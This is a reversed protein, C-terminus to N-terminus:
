KQLFKIEKLDFIELGKITQMILHGTDKVGEICGLFCEGTATKEYNRWEGRLYLSNLYDLRLKEFNQQRLQLYRQELCQALYEICDEIKFYEKTEITLSTPNPANSLFVSQNINIGIGVISHQLTEGQLSNQILIGAIKKDQVYIDNSWKIKTQKKVYFQVFDHVGLAIAQNLLFHNQIKLFTPYFVVSLTINQNAESEWINSLQGKGATQHRAFILTGDLIKKQALLTQAYTNTSTATELDFCVKGVFLTQTITNLDIFTLIKASKYSKDFFLEL